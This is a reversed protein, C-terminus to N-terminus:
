ESAIAKYIFRPNRLNEKWLEMQLFLVLFYKKKKMRKCQKKKKTTKEKIAMLGLTYVFVTESCKRRMINGLFAM